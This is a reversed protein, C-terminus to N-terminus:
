FGRRLGILFSRTIGMFDDTFFSPHLVFPLHVLVALLVLFYPLLPKQSIRELYQRWRELM